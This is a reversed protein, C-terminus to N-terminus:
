WHAPLQAVLGAAVSAVVEVPDSRPSREAFAEVTVDFEVRAATIAAEDAYPGGGFVFLSDEKTVFWSRDPDAALWRLRGTVDVGDGTLGEVAAALEVFPDPPV